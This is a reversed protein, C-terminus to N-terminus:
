ARFDKLAEHISFLALVVGLYACYPAIWLADYIVAFIGGQVAIGAGIAYLVRM